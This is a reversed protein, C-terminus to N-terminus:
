MLAVYHMFWFMILFLFFFMFYIFEHLHSHMNTKNINQLSKIQTMM